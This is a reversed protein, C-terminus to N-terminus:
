QPESTEDGDGDGRSSKGDFAVRDNGFRERELRRSLTHELRDAVRDVLAHLNYDHDEVVVAELGRLHTVARCRKDVGGRDGNTDALHIALHTVRSAFRGAAFEMRLKVHERAEPTLEIGQQHISFKM